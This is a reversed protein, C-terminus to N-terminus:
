KTVKNKFCVIIIATNEVLGLVMMTLYSIIFTNYTLDDVRCILQIFMCKIMNDFIKM